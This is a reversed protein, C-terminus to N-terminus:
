QDLDEGGLFFFVHQDLAENLQKILWSVQVKKKKWLKSKVFKKCRYKNKLLDLLVDM